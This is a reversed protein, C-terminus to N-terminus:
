RCTVVHGTDGNDVTLARIVQFRAMVHMTSGTTAM